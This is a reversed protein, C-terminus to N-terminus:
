ARANAARHALTSPAVGYDRPAEIGRHALTMRILAHHHVVHASVFQLERALTSRTWPQGPEGRVAVALAGDLARLRGLDEVARELARGGARRCTEVETRRKRATYDIRRAELGDLLSHVFDLLHRTHAGPSAWDGDPEGARYDEDALTAVLRRGQELHGACEAVSRVLGPDRVGGPRLDASLPADRPRRADLPRPADLFPDRRPQM